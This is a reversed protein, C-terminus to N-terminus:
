IKMVYPWRPGRAGEHTPAEDVDTSPSFPFFSENVRLIERFDLKEFDQNNHLSLDKKFEDKRWFHYKLDFFKFLASKCKLNWFIRMVKYISPHIHGVLGQFAWAYSLILMKVVPWFNSIETFVQLISRFCKRKTFILSVAVAHKLRILAKKSAWILMRIYMYYMCIRVNGYITM